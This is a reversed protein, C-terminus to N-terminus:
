QRAVRRLLESFAVGLRPSVMTPFQYVRPPAVGSDDVSSAPSPLGDINTHDSSTKFVRTNAFGTGLRLLLGALLWFYVSIPDLNM